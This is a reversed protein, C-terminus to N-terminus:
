IEVSIDSGQEPADSQQDVVPETSLNIGAYEAYAMEALQIAAEKTSCTALFGATHVFTCEKLGTGSPNGRWAEPLPAKQEFSGPAAPCCQINWGGRNSPFVVYFVQEQKAACLKSFYSRQWPVFEDLVAYPKVTNNIADAAYKFAKNASVEHIIASEVITFVVQLAKTFAEDASEDSDWNPNMNNVVMSINLPRIDPDNKITVGNDHADIGIILNLEIARKAFGLQEYPCGYITLIKEGLEQWVLGASAMPIKVEGVEHNGNGGKQHHDFKGGGIDFVTKGVSHADDIKFVRALKVAKEAMLFLATAVLEDAHFKGGHTVHTAEPLSSIEFDLMGLKESSIFM